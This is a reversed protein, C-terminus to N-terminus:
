HFKAKKLDVEEYIDGLICHAKSYGLNVARTYLEMAKTLVQPLGLLGKRYSNGLIFIATADNAEVRKM